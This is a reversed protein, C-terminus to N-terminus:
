ICKYNKLKLKLESKSYCCLLHFISLEKFEGILNPWIFQLNVNKELFYEKSYLDAGGPANIYTSAKLGKAIEIIGDSKSKDTLGLSSSILQTDIELYDVINQIISFNFGALTGNHNESADDLLSKAESFYPESSYKQHLTKNLKYWDRGSLDILIESTNRNSSAGILPVRITIDNQIKNKHMYGKKIFTAHDMCVWVDVADILQFYGFYPLFYPQM